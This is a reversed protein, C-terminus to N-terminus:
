DCRRRTHSHDSRSYRRTVLPMRGSTVRLNMIQLEPPHSSSLDSDRLVPEGVSRGRDAFDALTLSDRAMPIITSCVIAELLSGDKDRAAVEV